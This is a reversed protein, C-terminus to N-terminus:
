HTVLHGGVDWGHVVNCIAVRGVMGVTVFRFYVALPNSGLVLGLTSKFEEYDLTRTYVRPDIGYVHFGEPNWGWRRL